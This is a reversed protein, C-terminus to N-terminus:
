PHSSTAFAHPLTTAELRLKANDRGRWLAKLHHRGHWELTEAGRAQNLIDGIPNDIHTNEDRAVRLVDAVPNSDPAASAVADVIHDIPNVDILFQAAM